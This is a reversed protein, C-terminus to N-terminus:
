GKLGYRWRILDLDGKYVVELKDKGMKFWLTVLIFPICSLLSLLYLKYGFLGWVALLLAVWLLFRIKLRHVRYLALAFRGKLKLMVIKRRGFKSM